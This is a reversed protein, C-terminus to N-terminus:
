GGIEKTQNFRAGDDQGKRYSEGLGCSAIASPQRPKGLAMDEIAKEVEPPKVVVLAHETVNKSFAIRLGSIWGRIYDNRVGTARRRDWYTRHEKASLKAQAVHKTAERKMTGAALKFCTLALDVDGELGVFMVRGVGIHYSYYHDCRFNGAVVRALDKQWWTLTKTGVDGRRIGVAREEPKKGLAEADSIKLGHKACLRQAHLMAAESEERSPNRSALALLKAVRTMLKDGQTM